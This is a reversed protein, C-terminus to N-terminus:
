LENYDYDNRFEDYAKEPTMGQEYYLLFDNEFLDVCKINETCMEEGDELKEDLQYIIRKVEIKWDEFSLEM